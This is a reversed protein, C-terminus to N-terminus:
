FNFEKKREAVLKAWEKKVDIKPDTRYYIYGKERANPNQIQDVLQMSHFWNSQQHLRDDIMIQRDFDISDPIWTLFSGVFSYSEPLDYKKRYYNIPGAHGYSGGYILCSKREAPSLSHYLEAVQAVMEEWGHMDAYDQPLPYIKGDEWYLPGDLGFKDKMFAGYQKM